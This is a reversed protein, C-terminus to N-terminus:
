AAWDAATMLGVVAVAKLWAKRRAHMTDRQSSGFRVDKGDPPPSAVM